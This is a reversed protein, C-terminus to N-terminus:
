AEQHSLFCNQRLGSDHDLLSTWFPFTTHNKGLTANLGPSDWPESSFRKRLFTARLLTSLVTRRLRQNMEVLSSRRIALCFAIRLCCRLSEPFGKFGRVGANM